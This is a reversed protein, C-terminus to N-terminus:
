EVVVKMTRVDNPSAVRLIYCGASLASLNVHNDAASVQYEVAVRGMADIVQLKM